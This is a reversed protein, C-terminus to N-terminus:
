QVMAGIDCQTSIHSFFDIRPVFGIALAGQYEGGTAKAAGRGSAVVFRPTFVFCFAFKMVDRSM